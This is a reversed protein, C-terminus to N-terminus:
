AQRRRNACMLVLFMWLVPTAVPLNINVIAQFAYCIVVMAFAAFYADYQPDIGSLDFDPERSAKERKGPEPADGSPAEETRGGSAKGAPAGTGSLAFHQRASRIVSSALLGIYSVLGVPGVTFLYQLYENHASDFFQKTTTVMERYRSNVMYIGFTDPGTGFIRQLFPLKGYEEICARWIYGRFTGWEDSFCLYQGLSGFRESAEEPTMAATVRLVAIIIGAIAAFVLGLWVKWLIDPMRGADRDKAAAGPREARARLLILVAAAAWLLIVLAPMFPLKKFVNFVGSLPIVKDPMAEQLRLCLLVSTFFVALSIVYRRIGSRTRFAFFPVFAFFAGAALYGNDSNGMVIATFSVAM